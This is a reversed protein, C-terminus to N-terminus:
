VWCHLVFLCVFMFFACCQLVPFGIHKLHKSNNLPLPSMFAIFLCYRLHLLTHTHAQQREVGLNGWRYSCFDDKSFTWFVFLHLHSFSTNWKTLCLHPPGASSVVSHDRLFGLIRLGLLCGNLNQSKLPSRRWGSLPWTQFRFARTQFSQKKKEGWFQQFSIKM